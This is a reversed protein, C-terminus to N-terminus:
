GCHSNDRYCPLGVSERRRRSPSVELSGSRTARIPASGVATVLVYEAYERFGADRFANVTDAFFGACDGPEFRSDHRNRKPRFEGIVIVAFADEKLADYSRKIIKRYAVLFDSYDMSSLDESLASYVELDGYPPCTFLM